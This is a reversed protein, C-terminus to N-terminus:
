SIWAGNSGLTYGDVTTDHAMSDDQNLYYWSGDTKVWGTQPDGNKDVMYWNNDVKAWDQSITETEAMPVTAAYYTANAQTPLTVSDACITVFEILQIYRGLLPIFKYVAELPITAITSDKEVTVVAGAYTGEKSITTVAIKNGDTTAIEKTEGVTISKTIDAASATQTATGTSATNFLGALSRVVKETAVKAVEKAQEASTIKLVKTTTTATGDSNTTSSFVSSSSGGSSSSGCQVGM